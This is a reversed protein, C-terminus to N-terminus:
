VDEYNLFPLTFQAPSPKLSLRHATKEMEYANSHENYHTLRGQVAGKVM